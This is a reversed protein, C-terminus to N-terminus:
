ALPRPPAPPVAGRACCCCREEFSIIGGRRDLEFHCCELLLDRLRGQARQVRSKAGSRSIGLRQALEERTLGERLTLRLAERYKEPLEEIMAGLGRALERIEEEGGPEEPAALDEIPAGAPRRSRYHDVVAHRAIQFLWGPLARCDRLTDLRSHIRLYVDQLVDAAADADAVRARVFRRLPADFQEYVHTFDCRGGADGEAEVPSTM